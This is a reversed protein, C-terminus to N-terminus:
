HYASMTRELGETILSEVAEITKKIIKKIATSEEKSFKELVFKEANDPHGSEPEIGIRFRIFNKTGLADIISQVGRHGGSGSEKSLRLRGIKLDIDDQIIFTNESNIKYYSAIKQVARGSQNMYTLPKALIIKESGIKGESIEAEFKLSKKWSSFGYAIQWKSNATNAVKHGISHRTKEYKKGPNGLGIILFM